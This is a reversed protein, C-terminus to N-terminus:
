NCRREIRQVSLFVGVICLVMFVIFSYHMVKVLQQPTSEALAINGLIHGVIITVIAMSLTQGITRMTALISNTVAYDEKDVMALVANTNPSSFLSFSFGALALIGMVVWVPTEIGVWTMFFLALACVAMGASAMKSPAVKDSTKGMKPTLIAMVLPQCVMILGATQSGYGKVVQLYISLLYSIAFTAAYNLLAALNSYTFYKNKSFMTIKIVPVEAKREVLVFLVALVIGVILILKASSMTTLNALGYLAVVLAGVYLVNGAIDAKGEQEIPKSYPTHKLASVFAVIAIVASAVFISRWGIHQNLLGGLVPGAALGIYTSSVSIGLVKGRMEPPYVSILIANNTGFLMSGFIGQVVRGILLMPFSISVCCLISAGAYGAIGLLLIGRRGKIDALRGFPVSLAATTLTYSTLVWGIATASVHFDAEMHPISLEMCSSTFTTLFATIVTVILVVKRSIEKHHNM